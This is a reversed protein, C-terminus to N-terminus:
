DLLERNELTQTIKYYGQEPGGQWYLYHIGASQVSHLAGRVITPASLSPPQKVLSNLQDGPIEM